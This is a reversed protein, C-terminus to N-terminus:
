VVAREMNSIVGMKVALAYTTKVDAECHDAVAQVDGAAVLAAVDAGSTEDDVPLGFRKAFWKLSRAAIAGRFTLIQMLDPHPSRYKDINLVPAPVGLLRSRAMLVPLDFLNGNFTVLPSVAGSQSVASRWFVRLTEAEDDETLTVRVRPHEDGDRWLGLAVIRCTYPHLAAKEIQALEKKAIDDAIKQPDKLNGAAEAPEIFDAANEIAVTELDVVMSRGDQNMSM